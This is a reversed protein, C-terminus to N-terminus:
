EVDISIKRYHVSESHGPSTPGLTVQAVVPSPSHAAGLQHGQLPDRRRASRASSPSRGARGLRHYGSGLIFPLVRSASPLRFVRRRASTANPYAPIYAALPRHILNAPLDARARGAQATPFRWPTPATLKPTASLPAQRCSAGRVHRRPPAFPQDSPVARTQAGTDAIQSDRASPL